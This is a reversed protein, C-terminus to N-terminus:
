PGNGIYIMLSLPGTYLKGDKLFYGQTYGLFSPFGSTPVPHTTEHWGTEDLIRLFYFDLLDSVGIYVDGDYLSFYKHAPVSGASIFIAEGEEGLYHFEAFVPSKLPASMWYDHPPYPAIQQVVGGVTNLEVGPLGSPGCLGETPNGPTLLDNELVLVSGNMQIADGGTGAVGCLCSGDSPCGALGGDGGTAAVHSIFVNGGFTSCATGGDGGDARGVVPSDAGHGGRLLGGRMTIHAVSVELAHAGDPSGAGPTADGGFINCYTVVISSTPNVILGTAPGSAAGAGGHINLRQLRVWGANAGVVLGPTDPPAYIDLQCLAVVAGAPTDGIEAGAVRVSGEEITGCVVLQKGSIVFPDYLAEPDALPHVVIIDGPLAADIAAQIQLFGTPSAPDVLLVDARALPVLALAAVLASALPHSRFSHPSGPAAPHRTM